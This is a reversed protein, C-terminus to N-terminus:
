ETAKRQAKGHRRHVDRIAWVLAILANPTGEKEIAAALWEVSYALGVRGLCEAASLRLLSESDKLLAEFMRHDLEREGRSLVRLAAIQMAQDLSAPGGPDGNAAAVLYEYLDNRGSIPALTTEGMQRIRSPVMETRYRYRRDLGVAAVELLTKYAKTTQIKAAARLLILLESRGTLPTWRVSSSGGSGSRPPSAQGGAGRRGGGQYRLHELDAKKIVSRTMGLTAGPTLDGKRYLWLWRTISKLVRDQESGRKGQPAVSAAVEDM